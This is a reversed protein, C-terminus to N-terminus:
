DATEAEQDEGKEVSRLNSSLHQHGGPTLEGQKHEDDVPLTM